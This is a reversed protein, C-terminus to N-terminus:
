CCTPYPGIIKAMYTRAPRLKIKQVRGSPAVEWNFSTESPGERLMLMFGSSPQVLAREWACQPYHLSLPRHNHNKRFTTVRDIALRKHLPRIKKTDSDNLREFIICVINYPAM